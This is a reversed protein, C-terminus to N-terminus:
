WPPGTALDVDRDIVDHTWAGAVREVIEQEASQEGVLFEVRFDGAGLKGRDEAQEIRLVLLKDVAIRVRHGSQATEGIRLASHEDTNRAAGVREELALM